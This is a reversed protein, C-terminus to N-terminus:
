PVGIVGVVLVVGHDPLLNEEGLSRKALTTADDRIALYTKHSRGKTQKKRKLWPETHTYRARRPTGKCPSKPNPREPDHKIGKQTQILFIFLKRVHKQLIDHFACHTEKKQKNTEIVQNLSTLKQTSISPLHCCSARVLYSQAALAPSLWPCHDCRKWWMWSQNRAQRGSYCLDQLVESIRSGQEPLDEKKHDQNNNNSNIKKTSTWGSFRSKM